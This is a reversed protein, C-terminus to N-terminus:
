PPVNPIPTPSAPIIVVHNVHHGVHEQHSIVEGSNQKIRISRSFSGTTSNASPLVISVEYSRQSAFDVKHSLHEVDVKRRNNKISTGQSSYIRRM